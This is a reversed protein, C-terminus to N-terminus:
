GTRKKIYKTLEYMLWSAIFIIILLVGWRMLEAYFAGDIEPMVFFYEGLRDNRETMWHWGSHAVLASLLITGAKEQVVYKFLLNLVPLVCILIFLQGLEVGLNFSLLSTFLHQGAFQMSDSLLFSFGFGHVLGFAFAVIWRRELKAGVINEFAMYVISLAILTEILPAFWLAQPALGFATSILTISHAVTFSTIVPILGRFSRLPIVLCLLFLIHDIGELIHFFGLEMFEYLAHLLSPDLEVVGPNGMYNFVREGTGAPIFRLVTNTISALKNLTPQISFRSQDSKIPFEYLVDVVVQKYYIKEENTLAPRKINEIALDWDQISRDQPTTARLATIMKDEILVGEEFVQLEETLYIHAADLLVSESKEFDLYGPGFTPYVLESMSELPVRLLLKLTDGEPKVYMHVTVSAPIDHAKVLSTMTSTMMIVAILVRVIIVSHIFKFKTM